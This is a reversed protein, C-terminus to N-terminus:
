NTGENMLANGNRRQEASPATNGGAAPRLENLPLYPVVGSGGTKDDIIIKQANRLVDEITEIYMRNRTVERAQTYSSLVSEFRTSEGTARAITSQRYAEAEQSMQIAMGRARPLIDQRYAMARNQVDIADQRASQVDQFADQVDPHVEAQQILVQMINVGSQYDDLNEMMIERARRAVEDRAETIIPFMRTQGVVERIASEAVKKITNEQDRINFVFDEASKVNWQVVLHLNVINADATLMLSEDPLDRKTAGAEVFGIEMRRVESVNVKTLTEVPYPFRYGLGEDVQTREHAGFRQIVGHTGPEIIYFGSALWLAVGAAVGLALIKGGGAGGPMVQRLNSQARRLMEDLDPSLDGGGRHGGGGPPGGWPGRPGGGGNNGGGGGGPRNGWPNKRGGNNSQNDWSM